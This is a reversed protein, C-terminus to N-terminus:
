LKYRARTELLTMQELYESRSGNIDPADLSAGAMQPYLAALQPIVRRALTYFEPDIEIGIADLGLSAAAALTSGSGM